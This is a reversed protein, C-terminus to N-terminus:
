LLVLQLFNGPSVLFINSDQVKIEKAVFFDIVYTKLIVIHCFKRSIKFIVKASLFKIYGLPLIEM